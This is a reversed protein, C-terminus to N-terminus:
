LSFSGILDSSKPCVPNKWVPWGSWRTALCPALLFDDMSFEGFGIQEDFQVPRPIADHSSSEGPSLPESSGLLGSRFALM